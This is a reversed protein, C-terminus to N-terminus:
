AGQWSDWSVVKNLLYERSLISLCLTLEFQIILNQLENLRKILAGLRTVKIWSYMRSALIQPINHHRMIKKEFAVSEEIFRYRWCFFHGPQTMKQKYILFYQLFFKKIDVYRYASVLINYKYDGKKFTRKSNLNGMIQMFDTFPDLRVYRNLTHIPDCLFFLPDYVQKRCSCKPSDYILRM